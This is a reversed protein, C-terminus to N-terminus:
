TSRLIPKLTGTFARPRPAGLFELRLPWTPTVLEPQISTLNWPSSFRFYNFATFSAVGLGVGGIIPLLTRAPPLLGDEEDRGALLAELDNKNGRGTPNRCLVTESQVCRM